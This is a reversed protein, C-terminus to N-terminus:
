ILGLVRLWSPSGDPGVGDPEVKKGTVTKSYGDYLWRGITAEKPPKTFVPLYKHMRFTPIRIDRDNITIVTIQDKDFWFRSVQTGKYYLTGDKLKLDNKLWMM